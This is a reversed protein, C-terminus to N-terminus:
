LIPDEPLPIREDDGEIKPFDDELWRKAAAQINELDSSVFNWWIHRPGELPEGGFLILHSGASAHLEVKTKSKLIALSSNELKEGDLSLDGKIAYLARESYEPDIMLRVQKEFECELYFLPSYIKVPSSKEKWRGAILSFRIKNEEWRPIEDTAYHNFSADIEQSDKPLAIWSQIGHLRHGAQRDEETSRESHVIGKGATMWNVDGRKIDQVSGLSDRHRIRGEFLYTLTSLHIHPHPRVSLGEGSPFDVPGMEDWFIFPGVMKQDRFPLARRVSFGGGLDKERPRITKEISSSM